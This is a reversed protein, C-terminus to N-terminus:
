AACTPISTMLPLATGSAAIVSCPLTPVEKRPWKSDNRSVGAAVQRHSTQHTTEIQGRTDRNSEIEVSPGSAERGPSCTRLLTEDLNEPTNTRATGSRGEGLANIRIPDKTAKWLASRKRRRGDSRCVLLAHASGSDTM